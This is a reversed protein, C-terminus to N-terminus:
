CLCHFFRPGNSGTTFIMYTAGSTGTGALVVGTLRAPNSCSDFVFVVTNEVHVDASTSDVVLQQCPTNEPGAIAM